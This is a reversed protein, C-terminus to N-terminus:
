GITSQLATLTLLYASSYWALNDLVHFTNSIAPLATNIIATDLAVLFTGSYLSGIIVFLERFTMASPIKRSQDQSASMNSSNSQLLRGVNTDVDPLEM